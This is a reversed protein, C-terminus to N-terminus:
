FEINLGINYSQMLPYNFGLNDLGEAKEPDFARVFPDCITFVNNANFYVRAKTIRLKRFWKAPFTYGISINKLRLYSADRRWVSSENYMAGADSIFRSAPWKGPIWRSTDDYPDERHWRDYFYAPTNLNQAFIEAYVGSFRVTNLGSGQLLMSFDLGKWDFALTLGYFIKPYGGYFLPVYDNSDIIGDENVDKYKFDGPLIKANGLYPSYVPANLIEEESQFQGDYVCGWYVDSWRYAVGNRWREMSSSFGAHEVYRNMTRAYNFNGSISFNFDNIRHRFTVALDYGLTRDSNLNEQPLSAGFTNPLSLLRTALLGQRDRQYVDFSFSIRDDWFGMDLGIDAISSTFWTLERNIIGPSAAGETWTGDTFEYGRGGTVSFGQIYQFPLGSDEGVLGYSARIKLNSVVNQNQMFNEESIRWAVSGVPFFGWRKEPAYLCSGDYRFSFDVLYRDDYGYSVRGIYSMSTIDNEMGSNTQNNLSALNIQDSTYFSYERALAATRSHYSSQEYVFTADVEHVDKFKRSYAIQGQLTLNDVNSWSNSIRSPSNNSIANYTDTDSDYTFLDYERSLTKNMSGQYTYDVNIRASLGKLFPFDYSLSLNTNLLKNNTDSYGSIDSDSIAVPNLYEQRAPYEKNGNAYPESNPLATRTGYFINHYGMAPSKKTDYTGYILCDLRLNRVIEASINARVSFQEYNLDNTKLIGDDKVYGAGIYYNVSKSSGEASFHYQQQMSYDRMTLGYWDTSPASMEYALQEPTFVTVGSYMKAENYMQAWQSRNAMEPMDTPMQFGCSLDLTFKTKESRSGKKTTVIVVGNGGRRGYVAGLADKIVSINEIDNPSIKQFINTGDMQPIGDIVYLPNGFGRINISTSFDGPEGNEQRIQLGAVKGSLNQALSTVTATHLKEDGGISAVAGTLNEKRRVGYGVVVVDDLLNTDEELVITRGTLYAAPFRLAKYGILQITVTSASPVDMMFKGDLDTTVGMSTGEVFVAAGIVPQRNVDVVAGSVTLVDDDEQAYLFANGAFALLILLFIKSTKKESPSM